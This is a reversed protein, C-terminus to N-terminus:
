LDDLTSHYSASQCVGQEILQKIEVDAEAKTTASLDKKEVQYSLVHDVPGRVSTRMQPHLSVEYKRYGVGRYSCVVPSCSAKVIFAGQGAAVVESVISIQGLGCKHVIPFEVTESHAFSGLTLAFLFVIM